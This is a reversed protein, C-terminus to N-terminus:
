ISDNPKSSGLINHVNICFLPQLSEEFRIEHTIGERELIVIDGAEIGEDIAVKGAKLVRAFYSPTQDPATSPLILGNKTKTEEFYPEVILWYGRPTYTSLKM